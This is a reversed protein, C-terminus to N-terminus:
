VRKLVVVSNGGGFGFSNSIAFDIKADRAANPVYDLDCDPDPNELNITPPVKQNKLALAAFSIEAGGAAGLMHGTMSKTSSVVAHNKTQPLVHSGFVTKLISTEIKDNMQTSTGHANIYGIQEKDVKADQLAINIANVAGRGQPHMAVMHYADSTAGYGVVEAYINAGRKQALDMRELVLIGAGESMVFGCRDRDFPRSAKEPEGQWASIARINGFASIALPSLASETGGTLMYDAYGDRIMRFSHGLADASSSCANVFAGVCGQLNWEMSLWSSALNSITKPILFPSTKKAGHERLMVEANCISEVGGIGVGLLSGFRDRNEPFQASLGADIMAEHGALVALQIFREAKRQKAPAFIANLKEQENKVTGVVKCPYDQLAEHDIYGLGSKGELLSNWTTKTDNGLPTVLGIGTIAVSHKPSM